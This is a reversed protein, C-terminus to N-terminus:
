PKLYNQWKTSLSNPINEMKILRPDLITIEMGTFYASLLLPRLMEKLENYWLGDETRSDVCPMIEDNLADVDLHIWFGDLKKEDVLHLFEKTITEIGKKRIANLDFYHM